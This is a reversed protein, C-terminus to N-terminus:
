ITKLRYNLVECVDNTYTVGFTIAFNVWPHMDRFKIRETDMGEFVDEFSTIIEGERDSLIRPTIARLVIMISEEDMREERKYIEDLNLSCILKIKTNIFTLGDRNESVIFGFTASYKDDIFVEKYEGSYDYAEAIKINDRNNVFLKGHIATNPWGILELAEQFKYIQKEIGVPHEKAFIM